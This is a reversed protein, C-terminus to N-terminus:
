TEVGYFIVANGDLERRVLRYRQGDVSFAGPKTNSPRSVAPNTTRWATVDEFGEVDGGRRERDIQLRSAGVTVLTTFQERGDVKDVAELRLQKFTM